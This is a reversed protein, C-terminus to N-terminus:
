ECAYIIYLTCTRRIIRNNNIIIISSHFHCADFFLFYFCRSRSQVRTYHIYYSTVFGYISLIRAFLFNNNYLVCVYVCMIMYVGYM